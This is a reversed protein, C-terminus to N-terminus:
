QLAPRVAIRMTALLLIFAGLVAVVIYDLSEVVFYDQGIYLHALTALCYTITSIIQLRTSTAEISGSTIQYHQVCIIFQIKEFLPGAGTEKV